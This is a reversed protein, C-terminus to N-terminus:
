RWIINDERSADLQVQQVAEWLRVYEQIEATTLIPTIHSIWKNDQIAKQVTVNKRKAKKFLTPAFNKPAM